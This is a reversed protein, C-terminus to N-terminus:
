VGEAHHLRQFVEFVRETFRMDIGIGNDRVSILWAEESQSAGIHIEPLEERRFKIANGILNQFLRALQSHDAQAVPLPDVTM